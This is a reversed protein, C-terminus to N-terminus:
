EGAKARELVFLFQHYYLASRFVSPRVKLEQSVRDKLIEKGKTTRWCLTLTEGDLQYIGEVKDDASIPQLKGDMEWSQFLKLHLKEPWERDRSVEAFDIQKPNMGADITFKAAQESKTGEVLVRVEDKEIVVFMKNAWDKPFNGGNQKASVVRWKGQLLKADEDNKQDWGGAPLAGIGLVTTILLVLRTKM